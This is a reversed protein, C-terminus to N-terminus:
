RSPFTLASLHTRCGPWQCPKVKHNVRLNRCDIANFVSHDCICVDALKREFNRRGYGLKEFLARKLCFAIAPDRTEVVSVWHKCFDSWMIKHVSHTSLQTILGWHKCFADFSSVFSWFQTRNEGRCVLIKSFTGWAFHVSKLEFKTDMSHHELVTITISIQEGWHNGSMKTNQTCAGATTPLRLTHRNDVHITAVCADSSANSPMEFLIEVGELTSVCKQSNIQCWTKKLKQLCQVDDTSPVCALFQTRNASACLVSGSNISEADQCEKGQWAVENETHTCPCIQNKDIFECCWHCLQLWQKWNQWDHTTRHSSQTGQQRRRLGVRKRSNGPQNLSKIM